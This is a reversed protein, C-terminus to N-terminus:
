SRHFPVKFAPDAPERQERPPRRADLHAPRIGFYVEGSAADPSPPATGPSFTTRSGELHEQM